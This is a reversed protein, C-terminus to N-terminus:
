DTACLHPKPNLTRSFNENKQATTNRTSLVFRSIAEAIIDKMKTGVRPRGGDHPKAKGRGGLKRGRRRAMQAAALRPGDGFAVGAANRGETGEMRLVRSAPWAETTSTISKGGDGRQGAACKWKIGMRLSLENDFECATKKRGPAQSGTATESTRQNTQVRPLGQFVFFNAV